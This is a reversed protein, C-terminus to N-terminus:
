LYAPNRQLRRVLCSWTFPPTLRDTRDTEDTRFADFASVSAIRPKQPSVALDREEKLVM